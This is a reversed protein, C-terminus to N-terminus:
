FTWNLQASLINVENKYTGNLVHGGSSTPLTNNIPTDSVFLHAFGVDVGFKKDPQYSFGGALWKRDNGPIRATRHEADPIPEQDYAVGLRWTWPGTTKYNAGVAVRWVNKWSEDIVTDAQVSDYDVRLEKFRSWRTYTADALLTWGGGLEHHASFSMSEPLTVKAHATTDVLSGGARIIGLLTTATANTPTFTANGDLSQTIKSRYTLGLRTTPSMEYLLGFNFGYGQDDGKVSGIADGDQATGATALRRLDVANTLEAEALMINIGGGISLQPSVRWAAVPNINVTKLDSKIAHYRGQWTSDYETGLGFLVNIGLGYRWGGGANGVYYFNPVVANVGGEGGNGGTLAVGGVTSNGNSFKASPQIVHGAISVHNGELRMMGAPNFYVTSADEASAAAGAFANGLGRASQEALAFGASMAPTSVGASLGAAICARVVAHRLSM